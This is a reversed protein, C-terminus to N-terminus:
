KWDQYWDNEWAAGSLAELACGAAWPHYVFWTSAPSGDPYEEIFLM